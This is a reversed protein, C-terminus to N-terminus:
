DSLCCEPKFPWPRVAFRAEMDASLKNWAGQGGDNDYHRKNLGSTNPMVYVQTQEPLPWDQM